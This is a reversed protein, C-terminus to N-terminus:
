YTEMAPLVLRHVVEDDTRSADRSKGLDEDVAGDIDLDDEARVSAALLFCLESLTDMNM